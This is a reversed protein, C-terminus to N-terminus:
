PIDLRVLPLFVQHRYVCRGDECVAGLLKCSITRGSAQTSTRCFRELVYNTWGDTGSWYCSDTSEAPWECVSSPCTVTGKVRPNVGDPHLEDKDTDDCSELKIADRVIRVTDSYNDQYRGEFIHDLFANDTEVIEGIKPEPPQAAEALRAGSVLRDIGRAGAVAVAIAIAGRALKKRELM